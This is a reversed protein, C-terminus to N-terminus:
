RLFGNMNADSAIGDMCLDGWEPPFELASHASELLVSNVVGTKLIM